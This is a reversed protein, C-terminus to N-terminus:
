LSMAVMIKKRYMILLHKRKKEGCECELSELCVSIGIIMINIIITILKIIM